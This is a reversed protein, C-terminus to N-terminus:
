PSGNETARQHRSATEHGFQEAVGRRLAFVRLVIRALLVVAAFALPAAIFTVMRATTEGARAAVLNQWVLTSATAAVLLLVVFSTLLRM